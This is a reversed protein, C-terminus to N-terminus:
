DRQEREQRRQLIVEASKIELWQKIKQCVWTTIMPGIDLGHSLGVSSMMPTQLPFSITKALFISDSSIFWRIIVSFQIQAIYLDLLISVLLFIIPLFLLKRYAYKLAPFKQRIHFFYEQGWRQLTLVIPSFIENFHDLVYFLVLSFILGGIWQITQFMLSSDESEENLSQQNGQYFVALDVLEQKDIRRQIEEESAGLLLLQRKLDRFRMSLYDDRSKMGLV